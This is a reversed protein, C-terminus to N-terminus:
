AGVKASDTVADLEIGTFPAKLMAETYEYFEHEFTVLIDQIRRETCCHKRELMYGRRDVAMILAFEVDQCIHFYFLVDGRTKMGVYEAFETNNWECLCFCRHNRLDGERFSLEADHYLQMRCMADMAKKLNIHAKLNRAKLFASGNQMHMDVENNPTM